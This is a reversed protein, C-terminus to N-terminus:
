QSFDENFLESKEKFNSIFTNNHFLPPIAPILKDNLMRKVLSWYCKSSTSKSTLKQPVRRYYSQKSSEM